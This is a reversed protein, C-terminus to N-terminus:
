AAREVVAGPAALPGRVRRGACGAVTFASRLEGGADVPAVLFAEMAELRTPPGGGSRSGTVWFVAAGRSRGGRVAPPRGGPEVLALRAHAVEWGRLRADVELVRPAGSVALGCGGALALLRVLSAAARVARDLAEEDAPASSDLVVLPRGGTGADLRREIMEGTRAVTPWHIRSAPSGDRYPRLGDIEVEVAAAGRRTAAGDTLLGLAGATAAGDAGARVPELRPLVLVSAEGEVAVESSRLGFPDRIVVATPGLRKRGRRRWSAEFRPRSALAPGLALPKALLPDHIEAVPPPVRGTKVAFSIEIPEDEAVSPRPAVREARVPGAALGVWAWAGAALLALGVGPEYLSPVDFALGAAILGGALVLTTRAASKV